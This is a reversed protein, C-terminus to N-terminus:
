ATTKINESYHKPTLNQRCVRYVGAALAELEMEGPYVAIDALYGVRKSLESVVYKSYAIGGTLIVGDIRGNVVPAMAGIEKAVQYVLVDVIKRAKEDGREAAQEVELMDATGLYSYVGGEGQLKKKMEGHSYKGSYCLDVLDRSPLRGSREPTMPGEAIADTVDVARGQQHMSITIGGGMHCVIVNLEKYDRQNEQAFVQAVAKANLAHFRGQRKIGNLGSYSALDSLEYTVPSDTFYAEIGYEKALEYGIISALSSPHQIKSEAQDKCVAEDVLYTGGPIPKSAGGRCGIAEIQSMDVGNEALADVILQKRFDYQATVNEFQALEESSHRIVHEFQKDLDHFLGIKTSTSGPNIVLIKM